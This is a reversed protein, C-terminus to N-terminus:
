PTTTRSSCWRHGRSSVVIVGYGIWRIRRANDPVFPQGDRLTRFVDRLQGIVWLALAFMFILLIMNGVFFAGRRAPFRLSGRADRIEADEIGLTPARVRHTRADVSFSVPITMNTNRASDPSPSASTQNLRRSDEFQGVIWAGANKVFVDLIPSYPGNKIANDNIEERNGGM